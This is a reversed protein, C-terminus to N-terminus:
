LNANPFFFDKLELLDKTTNQIQIQYKLNSQEEATLDKYKEYVAKAADEYNHSNDAKYENMNSIIDEVIEKQADTTLNPIVGKELRKIVTNMTELLKKDATDATDASDGSAPTTTPTEIVPEKSIIFKALADCAEARTAKETARFNNKEDLTMIRNSVVKNVYKVAWTSVEDAITNDYPLEVFNNISDLVKCLEQRTIEGNPKFTGDTYGSIYGAKQAILVNEFFWDDSKVDIFNTSEQKQTYSFVQNAIKVFEARTIHGDPLFTGDEYGKIIGADVLKEISEYAWYTKDLDTFTIVNKSEEALAIQTFMTTMILIVTFIRVLKKM